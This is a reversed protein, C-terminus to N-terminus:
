SKMGKLVKFMVFANRINALCHVCLHDKTVMGDPEPSGFLLGGPEKLESGCASCKIMM